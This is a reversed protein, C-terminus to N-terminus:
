FQRAVVARRKHHHRMILIQRPAAIPHQTQHTAPQLNQLKSGHKFVTRELNTPLRRVFSPYAAFIEVFVRSNMAYHALKQM